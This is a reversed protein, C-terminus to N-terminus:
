SEPQPGFVARMARDRAPDKSSVKLVGKPSDGHSLLARRYRALMYDSRADEAPKAFQNLPTETTM